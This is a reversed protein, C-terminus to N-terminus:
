HQGDLLAPQGLSDRIHRNFLRGRAFNDGQRHRDRGQAGQERPDRFVDLGACQDQVHGRHLHARHFEHQFVQRGVALNDALYRFQQEAVRMKSMAVQGLAVNVQVMTRWLLNATELDTLGPELIDILCSLAQQVSDIEFGQAIRENAIAKVFQTFMEADGSELGAAIVLWTNRASEFRADELMETYGSIAKLRQSYEEALMDLNNRIQTALKRM